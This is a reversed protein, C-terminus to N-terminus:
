LCAFLLLCYLAFLVVLLCVFLTAVFQLAKWDQLSRGRIRVPQNYFRLNLFLTM